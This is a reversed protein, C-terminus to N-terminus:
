WSASMAGNSQNKIAVTTNQQNGLKVEVGGSGSGLLFRGLALMTSELMVKALDCALRIGSVDAANAGGSKAPLVGDIQLGQLLQLQVGNM